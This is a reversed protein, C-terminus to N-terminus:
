GLNNDGHNEEPTLKAPRLPSKPQITPRDLGGSLLCWHWDTSYYRRRQHKGTELRLQWHRGVADIAYDGDHWTQGDRCWAPATGHLQQQERVAATHAPNEPFM